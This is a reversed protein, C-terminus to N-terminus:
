ADPSDSLEVWETDVCIWTIADYQGLTQASGDNTRVNTDNITITNADRGYTVLPTGDATCAALTITVAAASDLVYLTTTPTVTIGDTVTVETSSFIALGSLSTDGSVELDEVSLDTFHTTGLSIVAHAAEDARIYGDASIYGDTTILDADSVPHSGPDPPIPFQVGLTISVITTVISIIGWGLWAKQQATLKKKESM